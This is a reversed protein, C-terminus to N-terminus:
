QVTITGSFPHPQCKFTFTGATTFQLCKTEGFGVRLGPDTQTGTPIVNHSSAMVFKVVDNVDVTVADPSYANVGNTTTITAAENGPCTVTVVFQQADVPADAMPAADIPNTAADRHMTTDGDDGGCAALVILMGRLFRSM